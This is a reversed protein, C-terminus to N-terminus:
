TKPDGIQSAVSLLEAQTPNPGLTKVAERFATQQAQSATAANVVQQKATQDLGTIQMQQAQKYAAFAQEIFGESQLKRAYAMMGEPTSLSAQSALQQMKSAKEMEPDQGGLMRGVAGGLQNAGRYIGFNARQFPDMNAYSTAQENLAADRAQQISEPTAGFLSPATAM